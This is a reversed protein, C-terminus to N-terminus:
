RQLLAQDVVQIRMLLLPASISFSLILAARMPNVVSSSSIISSVKISFLWHQLLRIDVGVNEGTQHIARAEMTLLLRFTRIFVSLMMVMTDHDRSEDHAGERHVDIDGKLM